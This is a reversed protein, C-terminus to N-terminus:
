APEGSPRRITWTPVRLARALKGIAHDLTRGHVDYDKSPAGGTPYHTLRWVM